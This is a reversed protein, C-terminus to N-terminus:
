MMNLYSLATSSKKNARPGNKSLRLRASNLSLEVTTWMKRWKYVFDLSKSAENTRIM